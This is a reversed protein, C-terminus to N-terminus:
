TASNVSIDEVNDTNNTTSMHTLHLLSSDLRCVLVQLLCSDPCALMMMASLYVHDRHRCFGYIDATLQVVDGSGAHGTVSIFM